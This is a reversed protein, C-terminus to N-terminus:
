IYIDVDSKLYCFKIGMNTLITNIIDDYDIEYEDDYEINDLSNNIEEELTKLQETTVSNDLLYEAVIGTFDYTGNHKVRLLLM